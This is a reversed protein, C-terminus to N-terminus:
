SFSVSIENAEKLEGLKKFAVFENVVTKMGIVNGVLECDKWEVGILWSIPMFLKGLLFKLDINDFGILMNAWVLVEDM